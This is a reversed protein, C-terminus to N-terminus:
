ANRRTKRAGFGLLGLLVSGFLPLAGPLPVPSITVGSTLLNLSLAAGSNERDAYFVELTNNGANLVPSTFDASSIAHVGPNEGILTGDVYIFSDDDSSLEFSVTEATPLNFQGRFVATEFNTSDNSGTSNPAYMNYNAYPLTITGTGTATVHANLAPSWWTIEQTTPNVDNVGYPTTAVPLGNPGLQSGLAVNPTSYLNFDPDSSDAVSFYTASLTASVTIPTAQAGHGVLAFSAAGCIFGARIFQRFM